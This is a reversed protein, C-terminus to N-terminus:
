HSLSQKEEKLNDKRGSYYNVINKMRKWALIIVTIAVIGVAIIFVTLVIDIVDCSFLGPIASAALVCVSRKM